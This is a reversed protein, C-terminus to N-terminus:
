TTLIKKLDYDVVQKVYGSYFEFHRSGKEINLILNCLTYIESSDVAIISIVSVLKHILFRIQVCTTVKRLESIVNNYDMILSHIFDNYIDFDKNCVDCFIDKHITILM